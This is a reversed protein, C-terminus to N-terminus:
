HNKTVNRSGNWVSGASELSARAEVWMSWGGAEWIRAATVSRTWLSKKVEMKWTKQRCSSIEYNAVLIFSYQSTWGDPSGHKCWKNTSKEHKKQFGERITKKYIKHQKQALMTIQSNKPDLCPGFDVRPSVNEAFLDPSTALVGISPSTRFRM